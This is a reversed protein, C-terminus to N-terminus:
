EEGCEFTGCERFRIQMDKITYHLDHLIKEIDNMKFVTLNEFTEPLAPTDSYVYYAEILKALNTHMRQLHALTPINTLDEVDSQKMWDKKTVINQVYAYSNLKDSLEQMRTEIRNLDWYNVYALDTDNDIDSQKRLYIWPTQSGYPMEGYKFSGYKAM